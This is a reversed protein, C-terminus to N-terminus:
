PALAAVVREVDWRILGEYTDAPPEGISDSYLNSEVQVGAEAAVTEVLDPSFQAESFIAKAGSARIADVLAAIEGASPDQGPADIVTGVIELDYAAAFYPFAEHFSVIRRDAQPIGALQERAWADLTDLRALYADTGSTFVAADDPHIAALSEGIREVYRMGLRVDLWLHPNVAEGEHEEDGGHGDGALYEVGDLDEGLEVITAASGSDRAIAGLWEDLGLGNMVILDADAVKGLDSPTPDFTHVEGGPPVLSVVDVHTGGVQRVMDALVTTTAVVRIADPAGSPGPADPTRGGNGCAAVLWATALTVLIARTINPRLTPPVHM